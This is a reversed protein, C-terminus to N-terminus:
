MVKCRMLTLFNFRNLFTELSKLIDDQAFVDRTRGSTALSSFKLHINVYSSFPIKPFILDKITCVM